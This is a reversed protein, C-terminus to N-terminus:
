TRRSTTWSSSFLPAFLGAIARRDIAAIPSVGLPWIGVSWIRGTRVYITRIEVTRLGIPTRHIGVARRGALVRAARFIIVTAISILLLAEAGFVALANQLIALSEALQSGLLLLIHTVAAAHPLLHGRLLAIVDLIINQRRPAVHRRLTLFGDLLAEANEAVHRFVRTVAVEVIRVKGAAHAVFIASGQAVETVLM